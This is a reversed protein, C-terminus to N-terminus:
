ELVLEHTKAKKVANRSALSGDCGISCDSRATIAQRKIWTRKNCRKVLAYAELSMAMVAGDNDPRILLKM